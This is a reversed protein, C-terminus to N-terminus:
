ASTSAGSWAREPRRSLLDPRELGSGVPGRALAEYAVVERTDLDVIPQYLSRILGGALIERLEAALTRERFLIATM